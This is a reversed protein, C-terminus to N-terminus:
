PGPMPRSRAGSAGLIRRIDGNLVKATAHADAIVDRDWAVDDGMDAMVRHNYLYEPRDALGRDAGPVFRMATDHLGDGDPRGPGLHPKVTLPSSYCCRSVAARTGAEDGM